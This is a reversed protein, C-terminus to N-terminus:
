FIVYSKNREVYYDAEFTNRKADYLKKLFDYGGVGLLEMCIVGGLTDREDAPCFAFLNLFKVIASEAINFRQPHLSIDPHSTGYYGTSADYIRYNRTFLGRRKVITGSFNYDNEGERWTEPRCKPRDEFHWEVIQFVGHQKRETKYSRIIEPSPRLRM